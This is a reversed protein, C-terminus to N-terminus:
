KVAIGDPGGGVTVKGTVKWTQTDIVHVEGSGQSSVYAHKGGPSVVIGGANSGVAVSQVKKRAAADYVDIQSGNPVLVHKGDATFEMRIPNGGTPITAVATRRAVDIISITSDNRNGVWIEREDPSLAFGESYSGVRVNAVIQYTSLDMFSVTNSERNSFFAMTGNKNVIAMHTGGQDTDIARMVQDTVADIVFIKRSRESTVVARKSDPTFAVGHPFSFDAHQIKKTEKNTALDIVSISNGAANPVYVKTGNPSVALEHPNSGVPITREVGLTAANLITISNAAKNVVYVHPTSQALSSVASLLLALSFKMSGGNPITANAWAPFSATTFLQM